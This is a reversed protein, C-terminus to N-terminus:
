LQFQHPLQPVGMLALKVTHDQGGHVCAPMAQDQVSVMGNTVFDLAEMVAPRVIIKQNVRKGLRKVFKLPPLLYPHTEILTVISISPV